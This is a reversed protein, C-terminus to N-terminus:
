PHDHDLTRMEPLPQSMVRSLEVRSRVQLKRFINRLHHEVTRPSIYLQAAVERNTAGDAVLRAIEHQQTTLQRVHGTEGGRKGEGTARLETRAREALVRADLHEFVELATHLHEMAVRPSRQRRLAAGYLLHTRAYEIGDSGGGRHLRLAQEFHDRAEEGSALLARCRELLALPGPGATTTAWREYEALPVAAREPQDDLVAAEVFHPISMVRVGPHSQGPGCRALARLRHVAQAAEGNSLDLFALAWTGLAVPLGLSNETSQEIAARARLRCTHPDGQIASLLALAATLHAAGNPQGTERSVRLGTLAHGLASPYRGTWFESYILFEMGQSLLSVAGSERALEVARTIFAHSKEEDGLHLASVGAWVLATPDAVQAALAVARRLPDIAAAYDGRFIEASGITYNWGLRMATSDDREGLERLRRASEVYLRTDGALSAAEASRVLARLALQRDEAILLEAAERLAHHADLTNASRMAMRGALLDVVGRSRGRVAHHRNRALLYEARHPQGALWAHHAAASLRCCKNWSLPTLEAARELATSSAQYGYSEQVAQVGAELEAALEPDPGQAAAARHWAQRTPDCRAELAKALLAHATRRRFLPMHQYVADCLLPDTFVVRGDQIRVVNRDEAPELAAVSADAQQLALVLTDVPLEPDASALLLLQMTAEPLDHVQEMYAHILERGLPLPHPLPRRGALQEDGLGDLLSLAAWPNGRACRVLEARVTDTPTVGATDAIIEAVATDPLPGVHLTEVGPLLPKAEVPRGACLLVLPRGADLRRAVFSLVELSPPDLLHADDIFAFVPGSRTLEGFLELVATSLALQDTTAIRGTNLMQRLLAQYEGDLADVHDSVRLLLQQLGAYPLATETSAGAARLRLHAPASAHTEDMLASKGMGPAGLLMM